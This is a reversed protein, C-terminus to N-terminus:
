AKFKRSAKLEAIRRTDEAFKQRLEVLEARCSILPNAGRAATLNLLMAKCSNLSVMGASTESSSGTSILHKGSRYASLHVEPHM